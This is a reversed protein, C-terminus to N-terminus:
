KKKWPLFRRFLKEKFSEQKKPFYLALWVETMKKADSIITQKVHDNYNDIIEQWTIIESDTTQTQQSRECLWFYNIM